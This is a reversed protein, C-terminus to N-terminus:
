GLPFVILLTVHSARKGFCHYRININDNGVAGFIRGLATLYSISILPIFLLLLFCSKCSLHCVWHNSKRVPSYLSNVFFLM